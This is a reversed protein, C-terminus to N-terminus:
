ALRLNSFDLRNRVYTKNLVGVLDSFMMSNKLSFTLEVCGFILSFEKLALSNKTPLQPLPITCYQLWKWGLLAKRTALKSGFFINPIWFFSGDVRKSSPVGTQHKETTSICFFLYQSDNRFRSRCIVSLQHQGNRPADDPMKRNCFGQEGFTETSFTEDPPM